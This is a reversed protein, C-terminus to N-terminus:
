KISFVFAILVVCFKKPEAKNSCYTTPLLIHFNLTEMNFSFPYVYIGNLLFLM